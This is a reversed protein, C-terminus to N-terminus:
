QECRDNLTLATNLIRLLETPNVKLKQDQHAEVKLGEALEVNLRDIREAQPHM